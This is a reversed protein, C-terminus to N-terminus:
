EAERWSKKIVVPPHLQQKPRLPSVKTAPAAQANYNVADYEVFKEYDYKWDAGYALKHIRYYIAERSPANFEGENHRMISNETPRWVGSWYTLGGEFVGLGEKAYRTDELFKKWRVQAPDNTFDVNKWWGYLSQQNKTSEVEESPITGMYDYAYEDALKAFGHGNAEHHLLQAFTESSEGKPFYAVAAGKGHDTGSSNPYYMFCTGAYNNSNLVVIVLTEDIKSSEVVKQAYQFVANDNGYVYTGDGFGCSLATNGYEFGETASVANVYSVNFLHKYSQYPEKTFLKSYVYEMDAKYSGDAIQRDSYGDGMLVVNIGNGETAKQLQVITGDQTYDTSTYYDPAPLDTYDYGKIYDKYPVWYNSNKYLDLSQAPVYITLSDFEFRVDSPNYQVIPPILTRCYVNKIKPTDWKDFPDFGLYRMNASLTVTELNPCQQFMYSRDEIAIVHDPIVYENIDNKFGLVASSLYKVEKPITYKELNAGALMILASDVVLSRNDELVNKGTITEINIAGEFAHPGIRRMTSPLVLKILNTANYFTYNEIGVIGEPITYESLNRGAFLYIWKGNWSHDPLDKMEGILCKNDPTHFNENGYFGELSTCQRFAYSHLEKLSSPFTVSKLGTCNAFSDWGIIELGEPLIIEELENCSDFADAQIEKVGNPVVYKKIGYPAFSFLHGDIILCKGDVSAQAGVIKSLNECLEFPNGLVPNLATSPQIISLEECNIYVEKLNVCGVFAESCIKNISSPLYISLLNNKQRFSNDIITTVSSDFFIKGIGNEYKNSVVNADFKANPLGDVGSLSVINGDTTKYWIENDPIADYNIEPKEAELEMGKLHRMSSRKFVLDSAVSKVITDSYADIIVDFGGKYSQAPIVFHFDTVSDKKLETGKCDLTVSNSGGELIEMQPSSDDNCNVKVRGSLYVEEDKSQLTISRIAADGMISIKMVACLNKFNLTESAGYAVMPYSGIGFSGAVYKQAAPLTFHITGNEVQSSDSFPYLAYYENGERMGAFTARTKGDGSKLTFKSPTTEGDVFVALEDGASWLPYYVDGQLGSLSTRTPADMEMRATLEYQIGDFIDEEKICSAFAALIFSFIM